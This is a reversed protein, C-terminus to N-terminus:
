HISICCVTCYSRIDWGWLFRRWNNFRAKLITLFFITRMFVHKVKGAFKHPYRYERSHMIRDPFAQAWEELGPIAPIKPADALAGANGVVVADFEEKWWDVRLKGETEPIEVMKRLTLTWKRAGSLKRVLEVRTSYSFVHENEWDNSNLGM